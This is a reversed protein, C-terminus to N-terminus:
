EGPCRAEEVSFPRRDSPSVAPTGVIELEVDADRLRSRVTYWLDQEFKLARYDADSEDIRLGTAVLVLPAGTSTNRGFYSECEDPWPEARDLARLSLGREIHDITLVGFRSVACSRRAVTRGEDPVVRRYRFARATELKCPRRPEKVRLPIEAQRPFVLAAVPRNSEDCSRRGRLVADWANRCIHQCLKLSGKAESADLAVTCRVVELPDRLSDDVHIRDDVHDPRPQSWHLRDLSGSSERGCLRTTQTAISLSANAAM